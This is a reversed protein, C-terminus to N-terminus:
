STLLFTWSFFGVEGLYFNTSVFVCPSFFYYLIFSAVSIGPAATAEKLVFDM